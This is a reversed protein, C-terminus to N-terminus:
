KEALFHSKVSGRSHLQRRKTEGFVYLEDHDQREWM